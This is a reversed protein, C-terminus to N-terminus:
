PFTAIQKENGSNESHVSVADMSLWGYGQQEM